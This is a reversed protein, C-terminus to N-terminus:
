GRDGFLSGQAQRPAPRAKKGPRRRARLDDGQQHRAPRGAGAHDPFLWALPSLKPDRRDRRASPAHSEYSAGEVAAAVGILAAAATAAAVRSAGAGLPDDAAHAAAALLEGLDALLAEVERPDLVAPEVLLASRGVPALRPDTELAHEFDAAPDRHPESASGSRGDSGCESESESDSAHKSDSESGFGHVVLAGLRVVSAGPEIPTPSAFGGAASGSAPASSAGRLAERAAVNASGSGESRAAGSAAGDVARSDSDMDM